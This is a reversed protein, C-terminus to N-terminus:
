ASANSDYAEVDPAQVGGVFLSRGKDDSVAIEYGLPEEYVDLITAITGAPIGHEPIARRLRVLREASRFPRAPYDDFARRM